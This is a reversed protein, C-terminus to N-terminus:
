KVELNASLNLGPAGSDMSGQLESLMLNMGEFQLNPLKALVEEGRFAYQLPKDGLLERAVPLLDGLCPTLEQVKHVRQACNVSLQALRGGLSFSDEAQELIRSMLFSNGVM